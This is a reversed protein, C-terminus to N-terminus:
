TVSDDPEQIKAMFSLKIEVGSVCNDIKGLIVLDNRNFKNKILYEVLNNVSYFNKLEENPLYYKVFIKYKNLLKKIKIKFVNPVNKDFVIMIKKTQPCLRKIQKKLLGIAGNGIMISYNINKNKVIIKDIKM